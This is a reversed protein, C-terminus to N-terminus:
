EGLWGVVGMSWFLRGIVVLSEFGVKNKLKEIVFM